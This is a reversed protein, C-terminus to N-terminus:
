RLETFAETTHCRGCDLGFGMAHIDDGRHCGGCTTSLAV